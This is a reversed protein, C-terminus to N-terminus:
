PTKGPKIAPEPAPAIAPAAAPRAIGNKQISSLYAVIRQVIMTAEPAGADPESVTATAFEYGWVPMRRAGHAAYITRGDVIRRVQEAPFAQGTQRTLRTLDPVEVKLTPAVSGDGRGGAGHCSACFRKFLQAGTYGSFDEAAASCVGVALAACLVFARAARKYPKNLRM